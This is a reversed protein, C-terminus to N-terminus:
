GLLPENYPRRRYHNKAHAVLLAHFEQYVEVAPPLQPQCFEKLAHYTIDESVLGLHSFIRRTYADVVLEPQGYGYLLMSDATEPGIGWVQLLDERKPTRGNFALYYRAFVVLKKAKVTFYGSPRLAEILVAQPLEIVAQPCLAKLAALRVLAQEVNLWATNQTLIAGVCIEFREADDRPYGYDGPHYRTLHGGSTDPAVVPWWGQPGYVEYLRKYIAEVVVSFRVAVPM